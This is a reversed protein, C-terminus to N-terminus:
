ISNIEFNWIVRTKKYKVIIYYSSISVLDKKQEYIDFFM